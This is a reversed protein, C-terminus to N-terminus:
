HDHQIRRTPSATAIVRWLVPPTERNKFNSNNTANHLGIYVLLVIGSRRHDVDPSDGFNTQSLRHGHPPLKGRISSM